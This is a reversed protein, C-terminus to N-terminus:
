RSVKHVGSHSLYLREGPLISINDDPLSPYSPNPCGRRLPTSQFVAFGLLIFLKVSEHRGAAGAAAAGAAAADGAVLVLGRILIQQKKYDPM